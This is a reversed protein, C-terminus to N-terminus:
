GGIVVRSCDIYHRNHNLIGSVNSQTAALLTPYYLYLVPEFDTLQIEYMQALLEDMKDEDLVSQIELGLAKLDDNVYGSNFRDDGIVNAATKYWMNGSKVIASLCVDCNAELREADFVAVDQPVLELNIGIAQAMQQIAGCLENAIAVTSTTYIFRLPEGNYDAEEVLQKARELDYQYANGERWGLNGELCPYTAAIGYGDLLADVIAQRDMCLSLAERLKADAFATGPRCNFELFVSQNPKLTIINYDSSLPTVDSTPVADIVTVEGTKLSAIRTQSEPSTQVVIKKVNTYTDTYDYGWYGHEDSRLALEFVSNALDVNSFEYPGTGIPSAFYAEWGIEEFTEKDIVQTSNDVILSWFEPMLQKFHMTMTYEGTVEVDGLYNRWNKTIGDPYHETDDRIQEFTFAVDDATMHAGNTFYVDERFKFDISMGDDAMKYEEALWPSITGDEEMWLVPDFVLYCLDTLMDGATTEWKSLSHAASSIHIAMTETAQSEDWEAPAEPATVPTQTEIKQASPEEEAAKNSGCGAMVSLVMVLVLLLAVLRKM